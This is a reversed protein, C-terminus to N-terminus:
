IWGGDTSSNAASSGFLGGEANNANRMAAAPKSFSLAATLFDNDNGSEHSGRDKEKEKEKDWDKNKNSKKSNRYWLFIVFVIISYVAVTGITNGAGDVISQTVQRWNIKALWKTIQLSVM